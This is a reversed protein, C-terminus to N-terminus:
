EGYVDVLARATRLFPRGLILSVRPDVDYDVVVLDAPFTFKGVQVCVDETIGTPYAVSRNALELTMRTPILDPLMLKKWVSLPMLNISAGLDALAMCKELEPFNYPILFKRPDRLKEPLKKLLVASCNETLSTNALGLLKEKDSLLDKLMKAYKPMLALAKALNDQLKEKNLRSPYPILPQHPNWKPIESPESPPLLLLFLIESIMEPDQEVEKSSSSSSSSLPLPPVSYAYVEEQNMNNIAQCEYSSHPGGCSDCSDQISNIPKNMSSIHKGLAEVQKTLAIIAVDQSSFNGGAASNLSDQDSQSLGNYFTDIFDNWTTISNLPEKELWTRAAGELSFPFLILKIADHSVQDNWTTISHPDDNEFGHFWIATVLNLLGIKLEFQSALVPPVVIADGVGDTPAQLLEEVPRLDPALINPGVPPPGQNNNNNNAMNIEEFDLLLSPDGLNRQQNRIVSEPDSFHPVLDTSTSRTSM